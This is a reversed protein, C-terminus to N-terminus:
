SVLISEIWKDIIYGLSMENKSALKWSYVPKYYNSSFISDLLCLLALTVYLSPSPSPWNYAGYTHTQWFTHFAPNQLAGLHAHELTSAYSTSCFITIYHHSYLQAIPSQSPSDNWDQKEQKFGCFASKYGAAWNITQPKSCSQALKDMERYHIEKFHLKLQEREGFNTGCYPCKWITAV